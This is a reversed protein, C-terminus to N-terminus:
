KWAIVERLVDWGITKWVEDQFWKGVRLGEKMQKSDYTELSVELPKRLSEGIGTVNDGFIARLLTNQLETRAKTTMSNHSSHFGQIRLSPVGGSRTHSPMAPVRRKATLIIAHKLLPLLYPAQAARIAAAESDGSNALCNIDQQEDDEFVFDRLLSGARRLLFFLFGELVNNDAARLPDFANMTAIGLQCLRRTSQRGEEADPSASPAALYDAIQKDARAQPKKSRIAAAHKERGITTCLLCLRDLLDRLVSILHHTLPGAVQSGESMCSVKELTSLLIPFTRTIATLNNETQNQVAAQEHAIAQEQTRTTGKRGRYSALTSPFMPTEVSAIMRRMELCMHVLDSALEGAKVARQESRRRLMHLDHLFKSAALNADGRCFPNSLSSVKWIIWRM